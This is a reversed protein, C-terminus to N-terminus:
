GEKPAPVARSEAFMVAASVAGQLGGQVAQIERQVQQTRHELVRRLDAVQEGTPAESPLQEILRLTLEVETALAVVAGRANMALLTQSDLRSM